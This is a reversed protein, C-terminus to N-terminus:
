LYVGNMVIEVVKPRKVIGLRKLFEIPNKGCEELWAPILKGVVV